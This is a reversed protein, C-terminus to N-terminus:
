HASTIAAHSAMMFVNDTHVLSPQGPQGDYVVSDTHVLSPQGPQDDYVVCDTHM